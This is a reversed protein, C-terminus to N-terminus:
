MEWASREDASQRNHCVHRERNTQPPRQGLVPVPHESWTAVPPQPVRRHQGLRWFSRAACGTIKQLAAQLFSRSLEDV